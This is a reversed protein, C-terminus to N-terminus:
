NPQYRYGCHNFWGECDKPTVQQLAYAIAEDLAERTRAGTKKLLHKVKSWCEEIPSLEPSYPPLYIVKCGAAEIAEQVGSVKHVSLNDLVVVQGQELRPALFNKVYALFVDGDAAGSLTMMAIVGMIGIAGLM